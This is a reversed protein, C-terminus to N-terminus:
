PLSLIQSLAFRMAEERPFGKIIKVGADIDVAAGQQIPLSADSAILVVSALRSLLSFTARSAERLPVDTCDVILASYGGLLFERVISNEIDRVGGYERAVLSGGHAELFQSLVGDRLFPASHLLMCKKKSITSKISLSSAQPSSDSNSAPKSVESWIVASDDNHSAISDSVAGRLMVPDDGRENVMDLPSKNKASTTERESIGGSPQAPRSFAGMLSEFEANMEEVATDFALTRDPM